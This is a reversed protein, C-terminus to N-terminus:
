HGCGCNNWCWGHHESDGLISQLYGDVLFEIFQEDSEFEYWFQAFITKLQDIKAQLAANIQM